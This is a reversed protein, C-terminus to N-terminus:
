VINPPLTYWPCRATAPLNIDPGWDLFDDSSGLLLENGISLELGKGHTAM